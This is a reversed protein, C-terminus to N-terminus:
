EILSRIEDLNRTLIEDDRVQDLATLRPLVIGEVMNQGTKGEMAAYRVMESLCFIAKKLNQM